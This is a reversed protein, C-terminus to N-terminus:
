DGLIQRVRRLVNDAIATCKQCTAQDPESDPLAIWQEANDKM